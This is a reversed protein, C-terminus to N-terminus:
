RPASRRNGSPLCSEVNHQELRACLMSRNGALGQMRSNFWNKRSKTQTFSDAIFTETSMPTDPYFPISRKEELRISRVCVTRPETKLCISCPKACQENIGRASRPGNNELRM